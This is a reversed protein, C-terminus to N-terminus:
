LVIKSFRLLRREVDEYGLTRLKEERERINNM